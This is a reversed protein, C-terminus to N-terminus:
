ASQEITGVNSLSTTGYVPVVRRARHESDAQQVTDGLRYPTNIPAAYEADILVCITEEHLLGNRSYADVITPWVLCIAVFANICIM